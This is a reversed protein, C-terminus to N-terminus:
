ELVVKQLTPCVVEVNDNQPTFFGEKSCSALALVAAFLLVKKFM